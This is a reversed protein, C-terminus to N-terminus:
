RVFRCPRAELPEAMRQESPIAEAVVEEEESPRIQLAPVLSVVM